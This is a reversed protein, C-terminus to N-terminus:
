RSQSQCLIVTVMESLETILVKRVVFMTLRTLALSM